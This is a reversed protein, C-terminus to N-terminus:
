KLARVDRIERLKRVLKEKEGSGNTAFRLLPIGYLELIREKKRDREYQATGEKHYTYGDVEIALAPQKGIRNYILFDLHTGKNMAYRCLEDDLYEPDRILMNLPQHCIVDYAIFEDDSLVESILKYMLNESDFDSIKKSHKLYEFRNQTYEKYMYDFVSYVKSESISFNNYEIYSILDKINSGDAIENGSVVLVLKKKARSVAVNLLNPNDVFTGIEDDVTTLIIAEKERGQFKHVTAVDTKRDGVARRMANVQQNYPAIIGIGEDPVSFNPLIEDVVVDIQRQNLHERAHKGKSTKIVTLTDAEGDDETMVVLQGAYFKQNCFGIIKPHCRYHEKLLTQPLGTIIKCVSSLFSNQSFRYGEDIRYDEFAADTRQGIDETVVNPLQKSDGVIVANKANSLALAGTAVDVQSAEDMIVYDYIVGSNVSNRSSFTTSLIVPYENIFARSRKWFDELDFVDRSSRNGYKSFLVGRLLQMSKFSLDESMQKANKSKIFSELENIENVLEAERRKYYLEQIDTILLSIDNKYINLNFIGYVFWSRIKYFWTLKGSKENAAQIENWLCLIKSSALEKKFKVRELETASENKYLDFYRKELRLDRLDQKAAALCEQKIFVEELEATINKVDDRLQSIDNSREWWSIDPYLGSQKKIFVEKNKSSGLLAAVFGLDYKPNSLKELVNVIASNNNSVVQVSKGEVLLNAILNLITQTKGTGPPGQIVSIQNEMARKVANYQSANCGFPFIPIRSTYKENKYKQPNLYRALVTNEGVFTATNEKINLVSDYRDSLITVGEESRIIINKSVQYLYDFVSKAEAESLCSKSITLDEERYDKESGNLFCVHWYTGLNGTFVYIAEINFLDNDSHELRYLDPNLVKPNKLFEINNCNYSFVRGDTFTIDYKDTLGNYVCSLVNPTIVKGKAIIMNKRTNM